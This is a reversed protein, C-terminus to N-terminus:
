KLIGYEETCDWEGYSLFDSTKHVVCLVSVDYLHFLYTSFPLFFGWFVFWSQSIKEGEHKSINQTFRYSTDNHVLHSHLVPPFSSSFSTDGAKFPCARKKFYLLPFFLPPFFFGCTCILRLQRSFSISDRAVSIVTLSKQLTGVVCQQGSKFFYDYYYFLLLLRTWMLKRIGNGQMLSFFFGSLCM